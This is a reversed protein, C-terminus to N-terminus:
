PPPSHDTVLSHFDKGVIPNSDCPLTVESAEPSGPKQKYVRVGSFPTEDNPWYDIEYTFLNVKFYLSYSAGLYFHHYEFYFKDLSNQKSKPYALESKELPGFRYQMWFNDAATHTIPDDYANGCISVFKTSSVKCSFYVTEGEVCLSDEASAKLTFMAILPLACMVVSKRRGM